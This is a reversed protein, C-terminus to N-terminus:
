KNGFDHSSMKKEKKKKSVTVEVRKEQRLIRKNLFCIQAVTHWSIYWTCSTCRRTSGGGLSGSPSATLNRHISSGLSPPSLQRGEIRISSAFTFLVHKKEELILM